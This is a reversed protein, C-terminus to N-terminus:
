EGLFILNEFSRLQNVLLTFRYSCNYLLKCYNIEVGLLIDELFLFFKSEIKFIRLKRM